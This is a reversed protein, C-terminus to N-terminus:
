WGSLVATQSEQMSGRDGAFLLARRTELKPSRYRSGERCLDGTQPSLHRSHHQEERSRASRLAAGKEADWIACAKSAMNATQEPGIPETSRTKRWDIARKRQRVAPSWVRFSHCWCRYTSCLSREEKAFNLNNSKGFFRNSWTCSSVVVM